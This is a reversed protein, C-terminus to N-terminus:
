ESLLDIRSRVSFLEYCRVSDEASDVDNGFKDVFERPLWRMTQITRNDSREKGHGRFSAGVRKLSNNGDMSVMVSFELAPEGPVSYFCAPCLQELRARAPTGNTGLAAQIEEDIRRCIELYM